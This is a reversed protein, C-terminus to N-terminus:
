ALWMSLDRGLLRSLNEIDSAFEAKLRQKDAPLLKIDAPLSRYYYRKLYQKAGEPVIRRVVRKLGTRKLVMNMYAWRPYKAKNSYVELEPLPDVELFDFVQQMFGHFDERMDDYLLIAIQKRPFYELFNRIQRYYLGATVYKHNRPIFGYSLQEKEEDLCKSFPPLAVGISCNMVFESFAREIPNRLVMLIKAQPTYLAMKSAAVRSYLYSTSCEGGIKEERWGNFLALYARKDRFEGAHIKRVKSGNLEIRSGDDACTDAVRLDTSFYNPEKVPCLYVDPHQELVDAISTTGAKMAGVLFFNPWRSQMDRETGLHAGNIREFMRM